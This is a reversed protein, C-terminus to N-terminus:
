AGMLAHYQIKWNCWGHEGSILFAGDYRNRQCKQIVVEDKLGTADPLQAAKAESSGTMCAAVMLVQGASAGSVVLGAKAGTMRAIVEGAKRNLEPMEVFCPTADVMAQLVEPPMISGGLVTVWSAGNIVRKVGLREYINESM